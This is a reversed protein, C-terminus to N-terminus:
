SLMIKKASDPTKQQRTLTKSGWIVTVAIAAVIFLLVQYFQARETLSFLEGTFNVMFHFLVASLTSRRNNNYIWTYLISNPIMAVMFLWFPLSGLGLENQYTGEIFFLPLHWLAWGVGLVFSSVLASWKAQLRDLAYGRWGLEEPLPGFLLTFIAFPLITLPQSLFRAATEFQPVSGGALIDLLIAFAILVPITLLIVAYWRAGIRKFEIVRRWYDRQGDREQTLYTLTIGALAPGVGGISVLLVVPFTMVDQGSLAAPIWFLWTWGWTLAFFQWPSSRKSPPMRMQELRRALNKGPEICM